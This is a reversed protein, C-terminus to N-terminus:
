SSLRRGRFHQRPTVPIPASEISSACDAYRKPTVQMLGITGKPSVAASRRLKALRVVARIWSEPIGLKQAAQTIFVTFTRAALPLGFASRACAGRLLSLSRLSEIQSRFRRTAARPMGGPDSCLRSIRWASTRNRGAMRM